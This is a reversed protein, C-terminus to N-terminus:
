WGCSACFHSHFGMGLRRDWAGLIVSFCFLVLYPFSASVPVCLSFLLSCKKFTLLYFTLFHMQLRQHEFSLPCLFHKLFLIVFSGPDIFLFISERKGDEHEIEIQVQKPIFLGNKQERYKIKHETSYTLINKVRIFLLAASCM